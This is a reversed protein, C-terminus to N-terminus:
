VADEGSSWSEGEVESEESHVFEGEVVNKCLAQKMESHIQEQEKKTALGKSSDFDMRSRWNVVNPNELEGWDLNDAFGLDQDTQEAAENNADDPQYTAGTELSSVWFDNKLGSSLLGHLNSDKSNADLLKSDKVVFIDNEDPASDPSIELPEEKHTMVGENSGGDYHPYSEPEYDKSLDQIKFDATPNERIEWDTTEQVCPFEQCDADDEILHEQSASSPTMPVVETVETPVSVNQLTEQDAPVQLMFNPEGLNISEEMDPRSILDSVNSHDETIDAHTVMSVNHEDEEERKEPAEQDEHQVGEDALTDTQPEEDPMDRLHLNEYPQNIITTSSTLEHNERVSPSKDEKITKGADGQETIEEVSKSQLHFLKERESVQQKAFHSSYSDTALNELEQEVLRDTELEEDYAVNTPVMPKSLEEIDEEFHVKSVKEISEDADEPDDVQESATMNVVGTNEIHTYELDYEEDMAEEEVEECLDEMTGSRKSKGESWMETGTEGVKKEQERESSESEDMHSAQTNADTEDSKYRILPRTDALTNDQAYSDSELETRWSVSINQSDEEEDDGGELDPPPAHEQDLAACQGEDDVQTDVKSSAMKDDQQVYTASDPRIEKKKHEQERTSIDEEPEARQQKENDVERGERNPDVKREIVSDWTDMEEGDPYLKDEVDPENAGVTSSEQRIEVADEKLIKEDQSFDTVKNFVSEEPEYESVPSSTRSEFNPELVAETESDSTEERVREVQKRDCDQMDEKEAFVQFPEDKNPEDSFGCPKETMRVCDLTLNPEAFQHQNVEKSFIPETSLGSDAQYSVTSEAVPREEPPKVGVDNWDAEGEKDEATSSEALAEQENPPSLPEAYTVREHVEQPRFNEVAGEQLIKPYPTELTASKTDEHAPKIFIKPSEPKRSWIPTSAIAKPRSGTMDCVSSLSTIKRSVSLQTPYNRKVGQPSFVADTSSLPLAWSYM